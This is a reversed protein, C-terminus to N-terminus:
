EEGYYNSYIEMIVPRLRFAEEKSLERGLSDTIEKELSDDDYGVPIGLSTELCKVIDRLPVKGFNDLIWNFHTEKNSDNM